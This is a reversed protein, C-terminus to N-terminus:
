FINHNLYISRKIEDPMENLFHVGSFRKSRLIISKNFKIIAPNIGSAFTTSYNTSISLMLRFM